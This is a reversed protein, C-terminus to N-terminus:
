STDGLGMILEDIGKMFDPNNKNGDTQNLLLFKNRINKHQLSLKGGGHKNYKASGDRVLGIKLEEGLKMALRATPTLMKWINLTIQEESKIEENGGMKFARMAKSEGTARRKNSGSGM